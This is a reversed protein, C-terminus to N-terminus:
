ARRHKGPAQIFAEGLVLLPVAFLLAITAIYMTNEGGFTPDTTGLTGALPPLYMAMAVAGLAFALERLPGRIAFIGAILLAAVCFYHAWVISSFSVTCVYGVTGLVTFRRRENMLAALTALAAVGFVLGYNLVKLGTPIASNHVSSVVLGGDVADRLHQSYLSLNAGGVQVQNGITQLRQIWTSFVEPSLVFFSLIVVASATSAAIVAAKRRSPFLLLLAILVLPTIKIAAVVGLSLGVRIPQQHAMALSYAVAAVILPTTQGIWLSFQLPFSILLLMMGPLVAQIPATHGRWLYYASAVIIACGLCSLYTLALAATYASIGVRAFLSFLWAVAPIHVYPHPHPAIDAVSPALDTWPGDGLRSFDRPDYDYIHIPNIGEAVMKGALWLSAFDDVQWRYQVFWTTFFAIIAAFGWTSKKMLPAHERNHLAKDEQIGPENHEHYNDPTDSDEIANSNLRPPTSLSSFTVWSVQILM